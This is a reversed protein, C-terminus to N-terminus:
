QQRLVETAAFLDSVGSSLESAAQDMLTQNVDTVTDEVGDPVQRIGAMCSAAALKFSGLATAYKAQMATDPILGAQTANPLATNLAECDLLMIAYQGTQQALLTNDALATVAALAKGGRGSNWNRALTPNSPQLATPRVQPFVHPGVSPTPTAPATPRQTPAGPMPGPLTSQERPEANVSLVRADASDSSRGSWGPVALYTTAGIGLVAVGLLSFNRAPAPARRLAALSRQRASRDSM